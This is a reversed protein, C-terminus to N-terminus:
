LTRLSKSLADHADRRKHTTQGIYETLESDTHRLRIFKCIAYWLARIYTRAWCYDPMEESEAARGHPGAHLPVNSINTQYQLNNLSSSVSPYALIHSSPM